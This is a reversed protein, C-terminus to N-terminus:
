IVGAAPAWQSVTAKTILLTSEQSLCSTNVSSNVDTKMITRVRTIPLLVPKGCSSRKAAKQPQPPTRTLVLKLDEGQSVTYSNAMRSEKKIKKNKQRDQSTISFTFLKIKVRLHSFLCQCYGEQRSELVFM